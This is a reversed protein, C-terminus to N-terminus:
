RVRLIGGARMRGRVIQNVATATGYEAESRSRLRLGPNFDTAEARFRNEVQNLRSGMGWCRLAAALVYAIVM